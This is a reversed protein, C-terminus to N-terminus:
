ELIYEAAFDWTKVSEGRHNYAFNPLAPLPIFILASAPVSQYQFLPVWDPVPISRYRDSIIPRRFASAPPKPKSAASTYYNVASVQLNPRPGHTSSSLHPTDPVRALGDGGDGGGSVDKSKEECTESM